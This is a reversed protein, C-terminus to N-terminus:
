VAEKVETLELVADMPVVVSYGSNEIKNSLFPRKKNYWKDEVPIFESVVGIVWYRTETLSVQEVEIVPGGSNGYVTPCDLIITKRDEYKGAIIGKRLLPRLYDMQPYEKLGLSVPYGFIFVDNGILVDEYKRIVDSGAGLVSGGQMKGPEVKQVVGEFLQLRRGGANEEIAGLHVALVDHIEHIKIRGNEHLKNLDLEMYIADTLNEEKPYSLLLAKPARLKLEGNQKDFFIHRATIFFADERDNNVYFGSATAGEELAVLVPYRLHDDLIARKAALEPHNQSFILVFLLLGAIKSNWKMTMKM